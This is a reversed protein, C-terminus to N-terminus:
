RSRNNRLHAHVDDVNTGVAAVAARLQSESVGFEKAWYTNAWSEDVAPAMSVSGADVFDFRDTQM